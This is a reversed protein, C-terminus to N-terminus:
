ATLKQPDKTDLIEAFYDTLRAWDGGSISEKHVVVPEEGARRKKKLVGDLVKNNKAFEPCTYINVNARVRSLYRHIAARAALYSARKYLSGDKKRLDVYFHELLHRGRHDTFYRVECNTEERYYYSLLIKMWFDTAVVTTKPVRSKLLSDVDTLSCEGFRSKNKPPEEEEEVGDVLELPFHFLSCCAPVGVYIWSFM